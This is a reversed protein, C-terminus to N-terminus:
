KNEGAPAPMVGVKAIIEAENVSSFDTILNWTSLAKAYIAHAMAADIQTAKYTRRADLLDMLSIAGHKYGFETTDIARQAAQLLSQDFRQVQALAASLDAYANSIEVSAQARTQEANRQAIDLDIRAHEIEGSYAYGTMLPVSFGVGVSNLPRNQGNHEVQVGVTIDRERLAQASAFAIEAAQARKDAAAVDARKAILAATPEHAALSNLEPWRDSAYIETVANEAAIKYALAVQAKRLNNKASEVDNQARLADIQLRAFEAAAIDGAKLRLRAADVSRAFLQANEDVIFLQQQALVLDYYRTNLDILGQRKADTYDSAAADARLNAARMRLARKNGREFLQDVRVVSDAQKIFASEGTEIATTNFSLTPNPAQAATIKDSATAQTQRQIIQLERNKNQWLQEAQM